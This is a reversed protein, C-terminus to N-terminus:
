ATSCSHALEIQLQGEKTNAHQAFIELIVATRDLVKVEEGRHYTSFASELGRQQKPTLDDDVVVTKAGTREIMEMIEEIKGPGFYTNRSPHTMKQVIVGMVDLGATGVLESLENLSEHLTFETKFSNKRDAMKVDVAVLLCPERSRGTFKPDNYRQARESLILDLDRNQKFDEERSRLRNIDVESSNISNFSDIVKHFSSYLIENDKDKAAIGMSGRKDISIRKSVNKVGGFYVGVFM